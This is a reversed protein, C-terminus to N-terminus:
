SSLAAIGFFRALVQDATDLAGEVWGQERSYAEGCIHVPVGPVPQLIEKEVDWSKVGINWANWGGGFPDDGWDRFSAARAPPSYRLGHLRLLQRQVEEVMPKPARYHKWKPEALDEAEPSGLYPEPQDIPEAEELKTWALGRKPRFADWYGINVGDDYSAMLMAKGKTVASGDGKPWYYTQRVPLDTVSRGKQVGSALWWPDDYTTFLKFLPRPTVSSILTRAHVNSLVAGTPELLDLSRRPMALIVSHARVPERDEFRLEILGNEVVDLSRLKAKLEIRGGLNEFREALELPVEQFGKVFGFYKANVGFDSLFWPIADAANWSTLTTQYGGAAVALSYAEHSLVRSLVQWFGQQHLPTGAFEATKVVERRRPESMQTIGPVVQEIADIVIEGPTKGEEQFGLSYPVKDYNDAFDSDRLHVGRLYAINSPEGVPFPYTEVGLKSILTTIRVQENKLIRMGGLEARMGPIEPPAVSLLRGGVHDDGEFVAVNKKGGKDLLRWGCYVGSVGAGVIATELAHSSDM